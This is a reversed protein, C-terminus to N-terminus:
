RMRLFRFQEHGPTQAPAQSKALQADHDRLADGSVHYQRYHKYLAQFADSGEPHEKLMAILVEERTVGAQGARQQDVTKMVQVYSPEAEKQVPPRVERGYLLAQRRREWLEPDNYAVQQQAEVETLSPNAQRVHAIRQQIEEEPSLEAEKSVSQHQEKAIADLLTRAQSETITEMARLKEVAVLARRTLFDAPPSTSM